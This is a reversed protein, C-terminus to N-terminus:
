KGSRELFVVDRSSMAQGFTKPDDEINLIMPTKKLITNRDGEVLFVISDTSIFDTDIHKEKRVRQSRRPESSGIIELNKRKESLTSSPTMVKLNPEQVNSDSIFKYEIFEVHISEVIVNTELDLLRYAKSNQAYGVFVSKLGRPGLKTRQPDSSKYFAVCGWVKFYNLNPKRGNWAEYPSVNSKKSLVRNHIHCATLLAEGWLNNPLKANLLMANVMDVLTRNKREALGNHQPTYPATMQHIIGNEECFTSFEKSFYEGGRDSRLVKIQREKQNEVMKKFEKFKGFAEDKTRLLYVYTFRSYDDIFTIFYRKGGRTLM